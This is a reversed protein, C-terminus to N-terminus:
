FVKLSIQNKKVYEIKRLRFWDYLLDWWTSNAKTNLKHIPPSKRRTNQSLQNSCNNNLIENMWENIAQSGDYVM